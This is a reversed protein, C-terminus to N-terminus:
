DRRVEVAVVMPELQHLIILIVSRSLCRFYIFYRPFLVALTFSGLPLRSCLVTSLAAVRYTLCFCKTNLLLSTEITFLLM